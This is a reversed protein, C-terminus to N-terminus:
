SIIEGGCISLITNVLAKLETCKNISALLNNENERLIRGADRTKVYSGGRKGNRFIERMWYSPPKDHNVNEPNTGPTTMNHNALRQITDWYTLLWAEFDYQAAHPFFRHESGVWSRMKAKADAADKFESPGLGTYVDTLAIVYDVPDKGSLHNEVIRKLKDQKPIRGDYSHIHLKPMNNELRTNLFKRLFPLFVKETEGEVIIEIKVSQPM